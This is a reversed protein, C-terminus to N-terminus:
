CRARRRKYLIGLGILVGVTTSLVLSSPEPTSAVDVVVNDFYLSIESHTGISRSPTTSTGTILISDIGSGSTSLTDFVPLSQDGYNDTVPSALLTGTANPGSFASLTATDSDGNFDGYEISFNSVPQSFTFILGGVTTDYFPDVSVNGWSAPMKTSSLEPDYVLDFPLNNQRTVTLGLGGATLQLSMLKGHPSPITDPYYTPTQNEFDFTVSAFLPAPNLALAAGFLSFGVFSLRLWGSMRGCYCYGLTKELEKSLYVTSAALFVVLSEQSHSNVHVVCAVAKLIAIM